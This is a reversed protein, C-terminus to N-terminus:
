KSRALKATSSFTATGSMGSLVEGPQHKFKGRLRITQSAADVVAGIRLLEARYTKGTEDATFDFELGPRLWELWRSSAVFQLELNAEDVIRLLPANVAPTEHAAVNKEVVRGAFPAAVKCYKIRADLAQVNAQAKDMDAKATQVAFAGGAGYRKLKMNSQWAIRNGRLAARAAEREATLQTCDFQVLIDGKEFRDGERFPALEIRSALASSITVEETAKILGRLTRPKDGALASLAFTPLTTAICAIALTRLLVNQIHRPYRM